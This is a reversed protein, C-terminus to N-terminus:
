VALAYTATVSLTFGTVPTTSPTGTGQLLVQVPDTGDFDAIGVVTFADPGNTDSGNGSGGANQLVKLVTVFEAETMDGADKVISCELIRGSLGQTNVIQEFNATMRSATNETGDNNSIQRVSSTDAM